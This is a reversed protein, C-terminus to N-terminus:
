LTGRDCGEVVGAPAVCCVLPVGCYRSNSVVCQCHQGAVVSGQPTVHTRCGCPNIPHAHLPPGTAPQMYAASAGALARTAQRCADPAVGLAPVTRLQDTAPCVWCCLYRLYVTFGAVTGVISCSGATYRGGPTGLGAKASAPISHMARPRWAKSDSLMCVCRGCTVTSLPALSDTGAGPGVACGGTLIVIKPAWVAAPSDGQSATCSLM